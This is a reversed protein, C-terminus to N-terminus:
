TRLPVVRRGRGAARHLRRFASSRWAPRARRRFGVDRSGRAALELFWEEHVSPNELLSPLLKPRLNELAVMYQLVEQATAPDSAAALASKEEWGALTMRAQQGFVRNHNALYVLIELMERPPLSLAGRAAAQVLTAPVVGKGPVLVATRSASPADPVVM